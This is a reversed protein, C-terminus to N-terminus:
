DVESDRQLSTWLSILLLLEILLLHAEFYPSESM